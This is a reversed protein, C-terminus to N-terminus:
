LCMCINKCITYQVTWSFASHHATPSQAKRSSDRKFHTHTPNWFCSGIGIVEDFDVFGIGVMVMLKAASNRGQNRNGKNNNYGNLLQNEAFQNTCLNSSSLSFLFVFANLFAYLKCQVLHTESVTKISLKRQQQDKKKCKKNRNHTHHCSACNHLGRILNLALSKVEFTTPVLEFLRFLALLSFFLFIPRDHVKIYLFFLDHILFIISSFRSESLIEYM